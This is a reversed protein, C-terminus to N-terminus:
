TPGVAALMMGLQYAADRYLPDHHDTEAVFASLHEIAQEAAGTEAHSAGAYYRLQTQLEHGAMRPLIEDLVAAARSFEDAAYLTAETKAGTEPCTTQADTWCPRLLRGRGPGLHGSTPPRPRSACAPM